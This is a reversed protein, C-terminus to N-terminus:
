VLTADYGFEDLFLSYRYRCLEALEPALDRAFRGISQSAEETTAHAQVRADRATVTAAVRDVVDSRSDVEAYQFLTRLVSAPDRLLDEYRVLLASSRRQQWADVLQDASSGLRLLYEAVPEGPRRGFGSYGRKSDFAVISSVVDRFDRVLFVEKSTPFLDRLVWQEPGATQKEAFLTAAQKGARERVDEYSARIQDRCLRASREVHERAARDGLRHFTSASPLATPRIEGETRDSLAILARSWYQAPAFEYPFTPEVVIEPHEGLLRMLLTSGSRGITTVILPRVGDGEDLALGRRRGEVTAVHFCERTASVARVYLTFEPPLGVVTVYASFRGSGAPVTPPLPRAGPGPADGPRAVGVVRYVRFKDVVEVTTSREDAWGEVFFGYTASASRRAPSALDHAKATNASAPLVNMISVVREEGRSGGVLRTLSALRSM